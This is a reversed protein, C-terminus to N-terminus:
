KVVRLPTETRFPPVSTVRNESRSKRMPETESAPQWRMFARSPVAGTVDCREDTLRWETAHRVKRTFGGPTACEIFGKAQLEAFARSATDKNIRCEEAAERASYPIAGNNSGNFRLRLQVYVTRAVPTLSLWAASRLV